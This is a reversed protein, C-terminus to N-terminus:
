LSQQERGIGVAFALRDGPMEGLDELLPTLEAALPDMADNEVLDSLVRNAVCDGLRAVDGRLEHVRLLRAASEVVEDSEIKRREQPLLHPAAERCPANLAGRQAHDALALLLDRGELRPLVPRELALALVRRLAKRDLEDLVAALLHLLEAEHVLRRRTLDLARDDRR